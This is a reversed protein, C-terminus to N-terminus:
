KWLSKTAKLYFTSTSCVYLVIYTIKPKKQMKMPMSMMMINMRMKMKEKEMKLSNEISKCVERNGTALIM